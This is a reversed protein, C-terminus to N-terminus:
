TVSFAYNFSSCFCVFDWWLDSVIHDVNECGMETLEPGIFVKRRGLPAKGDTKRTLIRHGNTLEESV